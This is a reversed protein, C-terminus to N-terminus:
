LIGICNTLTLQVLRLLCKGKGQKYRVETVRCLLQLRGSARCRSCVFTKMTLHHDRRLGGIEKSVVKQKNGQRQTSTLQSTAQRTGGGRRTNCLLGGGVCMHIDPFYCAKIMQLARVLMYRWKYFTDM